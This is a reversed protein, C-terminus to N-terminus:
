KKWLVSNYSGTENQEYDPNAPDKIWKGDAIFKYTTKGKPIFLELEWRGNRKQMKYGHHIWNNFSGTVMVEKANEYGELVFLHNPKHVLFSNVFAGTGHTRPNDPDPMWQGDIIFKYEYNGPELFVTAEWRGDKRQMRLDNPQWQNFSGALFVNQADPYGNLQLTVPDGICIESLSNGSEDTIRNPNGPDPFSKGESWFVYQHCGTTLYVPLEFGSPSQNMRTSLTDWDNFSGSVIVNTLGQTSDLRFSHNTVYLVSNEASVGDYESQKNNPDTIWQDDAIYKYYYKGPSLSLSTQWVSDVQTLAIDKNLWNNFSGALYVNQADPFAHLTFQVKGSDPINVAPGSFQNFGFAVPENVYGPSWFQYNRQTTLALVLDLFRFSRKVPKRLEVHYRDIPKAEWKQGENFFNRKGKYLDAIMASDLDYQETLLKRQAETWRLDVTFVLDGKQVECIDPPLEQAPTRKIPLALILISLLLFYKVSISM